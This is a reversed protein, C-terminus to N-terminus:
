AIFGRFLSKDPLDPDGAMARGIADFSHAMNQRLPAGGFHLGAGSFPPSLFVVPAGSCGGLTTADHTFAWQRVDGSIQGPWAKVLGPSIYKHGYNNQFIEWLRDWIEPSVEGTAPDIQASFVPKAPYGVIILRTEPGQAPLAGPPIPTPLAAGAANTTEVELAALDLKRIDVTDGIRKPGCAVVSRIRFRRAPNAATEDFTISVEESLEFRAAGNASPIPQSFMEIVHRNTAILGDAMVWGTGIHHDGGDRRVDIRGVADILPKLATRPPGLESAWHDIGPDKPDIMGNVVRLAPRGTLMVIAETAARPMQPPPGDVPGAAFREATRAIMGGLRKRAAAITPDADNAPDFRNLIAEVHDGVERKGAGALYARVQRETPVGELGGKPMVGAIHRLADSPGIYPTLPSRVVSPRSPRLRKATGAAALAAALARSPLPPMASELGAEAQGGDRHAGDFALYGAEAVYRRRQAIGSILPAGPNAGAIGSPSPIATLALDLLARADVIGAGMKKPSWIAPVRATARLASRFLAQVTTKRLAAEAKVKAPGFHALWLAACGATIAVAFSTGQGPAVKSKDSDSPSQRFATYVNEAPASIDVKRGKCTGTWPADDADVGAVAIVNADWAPYVVIKACNGAAALVIMGADVARAIARSLAPDEIPGGLSMTIIHCGSIRAHDVASAVAAGGGIMVSNICRLPVLTAEPAAGIVSLSSRSVVVSATKTGHGPNGMTESLPDVPLGGELVNIGRALDVATDLERHDAVGTDPQGIVIGKGRTQFKAWAKDARVSKIAWTVDDPVAAKSSCISWVIDSISEARAAPAAETGIQGPYIEPVCAALDLTDVLQQAMEFLYGASQQRPVGPFQLVYIRDDEGPPLAFFQFGAAELETELRRRVAPVDPPAAFELTFRLDGPTFHRSGEAQALRAAAKLLLLAM